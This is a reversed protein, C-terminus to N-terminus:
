VLHARSARALSPSSLVGREEARGMVIGVVEVGRGGCRLGVMLRRVRPGGSEGRVVHTLEPDGRYM